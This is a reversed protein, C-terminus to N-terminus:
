KIKNNIVNMLYSESKIGIILEPEETESLDNIIITPYKDINYEEVLEKNASDKDVIALAVTCKLEKICDLLRNKMTDCAFCNNCQVFVILVGSVNNNVQVGM